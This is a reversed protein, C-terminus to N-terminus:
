SCEEQRQREAVQQLREKGNEKKVNIKPMMGEVRVSTRVM